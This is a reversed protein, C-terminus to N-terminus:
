AKHGHHTWSKCGFLTLRRRQSAPSLPEAQLRSFVGLVEEKYRSPAVDMAYTAVVEM